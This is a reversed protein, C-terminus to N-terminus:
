PQSIPKYMSYQDWVKMVSTCVELENVIEDLGLQFSESHLHKRLETVLYPLSKVRIPHNPGYRSEDKLYRLVEIAEKYGSTLQRVKKLDKADRLESLEPEKFENGTYEPGSEFGLMRYYYSEATSHTNKTGIGFIPYVHNAVDVMEAIMSPIIVTRLPHNPGYKSKDELMEIMNVVSIRDVVWKGNVAALKEVPPLKSDM